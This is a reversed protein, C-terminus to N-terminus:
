FFIASSLQGLLKKTELCNTQVLNKAMAFILLNSEISCYSRLQVFVDLFRVSYEPKAFGPINFIKEMIRFLSLQLEFASFVVLILLEM